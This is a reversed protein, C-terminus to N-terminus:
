RIPIRFDWPVDENLRDMSSLMQLEDLVATLSSESANYDPVMAHLAYLRTEQTQIMSTITENEHEMCM